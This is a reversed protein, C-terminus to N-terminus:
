VWKITHFKVDCTTLGNRSAGGQGMVQKLETCAKLTDNETRGYRGFCYENPLVAFFCDYLTMHSGNANLGAHGWQSMIGQQTVGTPSFVLTSDNFFIFLVVALFALLIMFLAFLIYVVGKMATIGEEGDGM